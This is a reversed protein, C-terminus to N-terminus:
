KLPLSVTITTGKNEDSQLQLSGHHCEVIHKVISLGLGTGGTQKSRSKDVRYFREFIRSQHEKPIGIGTDAVTVIAQNADKSLTLNVRGGPRNYKVANDCLNQVLEELMRPNGKVNLPGGDVLITVQKQECVFQLSHIVRDCVGRLEVEKMDPMDAQEIRSLRIIDDTLVILRSAEQYIRGAFKQIDDDEKVMGGKIMEAFGSISTLPTKLEHSVNATFDRRIKEARQQETVDLILIIAGCVEQERFVASVSVLCTRGDKEMMLSGSEGDEVANAVCASLEADRSITLINKGEYEGSRVGLLSLASHNVSLINHTRDLLILGENMNQTIMSITNRETSLRDFQKQILRNQGRIKRIFPELEEYGILENADSMNEALNQIPRLLYRTLRSAALMSMIVILLIILLVLPIMSLLVAGISRTQNSVRLITGDSLKQAYYYSDLGLTDSHRVNEGVGNQLAASVEPRDSHNEQYARESDSDYLVQGDPAILTVRFSESRIDLSSLYSVSDTGAYEMSQAILKWENSLASQAQRILMGYVSWLTLAVTLLAMSIAILCQSWFMKRKLVAIGRDQLWRGASNPDGRRM